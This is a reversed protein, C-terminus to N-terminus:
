SINDLWQQLGEKIPVFEETTKDFFDSSKESQFLKGTALVKDILDIYARAVLTTDIGRMAYKAVRNTQRLWNSVTYADADQDYLPNLMSIYKDGTFMERMDVQVKRRIDYGNMICTQDFNSIVDTVNKQNPKCSINVQPYEPHDLKITCLWQKTDGRKIQREWKWREGESAFDFGLKFRVQCVADIFAQNNYVFIDVDADWDSIDTDYCWLSSGTICGNIDTQKLLHLLDMYQQNNM